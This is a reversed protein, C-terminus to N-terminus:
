DQPAAIWGKPTKVSIGIGNDECVFLLPLPASQYSTWGATNFAAQATAHNASADGFSAMVIADDEFEAHEPRHRKAAGIAYAAIVGTVHPALLPIILLGALLQVADYTPIRLTNRLYLQWLALGFHLVLSLMLFPRLPGTWFATLWPRWADMAAISHLGLMLNVLHSTIFAYLVLGTVILGVRRWIAGKPSAPEQSM